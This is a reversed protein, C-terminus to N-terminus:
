PKKIVMLPFETLYKQYHPEVQIDMSELFRTVCVYFSATLVLEVIEESDFAQQRLEDITAKSAGPGRTVEDVLGLVARQRADFLDTSAWTDLAEIEAVTVGAALAMPVHHAWEYRANSIQAGRLILLERLERPTKAQHRLPWAFDLWAEFMSPALGLVRYLDPIEFGPGAAARVRDFLNSAAQDAPQDSLMPLRSM